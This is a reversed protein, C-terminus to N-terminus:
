RYGLIWQSVIFDFRHRSVATRFDKTDWDIPPHKAYFGTRGINFLGLEGTYGYQDKNENILFVGAHIYADGIPDLAQHDKLELAGDFFANFEVKSDMM